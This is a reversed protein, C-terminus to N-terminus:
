DLLFLDNVKHSEFITRWFGQYRHPSTLHHVPVRGQVGVHDPVVHPHDPHPRLM